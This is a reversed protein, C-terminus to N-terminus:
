EVTDTTSGCPLTALPMDFLVLKRRGTVAPVISAYATHL